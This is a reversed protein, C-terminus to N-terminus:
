QISGVQIGVSASTLAFQEGPRRGWSETWLVMTIGPGRLGGHLETVRSGTAYGNGLRM